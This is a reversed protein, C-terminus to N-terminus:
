MTFPNFYVRHPSYLMFGIKNKRRKMLSAKFRARNLYYKKNM